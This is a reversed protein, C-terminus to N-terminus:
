MRVLIVAKIGVRDIPVGIANEKQIALLVDVFDKDNDENENMGDNASKSKDMHEQIVMDLFEDARNGILARALKYAVGAGCLGDFPYGSQLKCNIVPCDPIQEPIEHHDTVIVDVGLDKLEEVENVASIGCDVTIILDPFYNELVFDIMEKSLGYGNEREPIVPIAEIGFIKLSRYLVTVASIGDADYDGYIIVTEGNEKAQKIRIVADSVGGLLLPNYLDEIRPHLFAKATEVSDYGRSVLIQAFRESVRLSDAIQKILNKDAFAKDNIRIM